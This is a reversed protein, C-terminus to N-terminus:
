NSLNKRIFRSVTKKAESYTLASFNEYRRHVDIIEELADEVLEKNEWKELSQLVTELCGEKYSIQSLVHVITQRVRCNPDDQLQVLFPLIEQPHTRGRLEIGHVIQRRIKPDKHHLLTKAFTLTPKPNKEGMRKLSGIVANRVSHHNDMLAIKLYPIIKQASVIGLEGCLYVATQRIKENEDKIMKKVLKLVPVRQSKEELYIRSLILYANRRIYTDTDSSYKELFYFKNSNLETTINKTM